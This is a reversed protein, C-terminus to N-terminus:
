DRPALKRLFEALFRQTDKNYLEVSTSKPALERFEAGPIARALTEGYEFPHIPDRRNALVLVPMKLSAWEARDLNPADLPIKELRVVAEVARPEAFQALLSAACDPSEALTKAYLDTQRFEAPGAVPGHRRILRAVTSFREANELMPGNLWAPRSMVLAIVRSPFRLAFNLAVAAGMSIGGVVARPLELRDMLTGLDDAFTAIAIKEPPGLPRTEGHGRFDFSLFRTGPPPSFLSFPQALNGGLGHQFFFPVGAGTERYHFDIGDHQITPM